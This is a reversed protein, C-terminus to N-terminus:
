ALYLFARETDSITGSSHELAIHIHYVSICTGLAVQHYIHAQKRSFPVAEQTYSKSVLRTSSFRQVATADVPEVPLMPPMSAM